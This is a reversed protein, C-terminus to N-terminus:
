CCRVKGVLKLIRCSKGVKVCGRHADGPYFVAYGEERLVIQAMRVPENWFEIDKEPDYPTKRQLTSTPAIDIEETGRIIWQIDIYKRHSELRCEASERTDYEQVTYYFDDNVTFRGPQLKTRDLNGLFSIAQEVRSSIKRENTKERLSVLWEAFERLAGDGARSFCVYDAAARVEPIADAPCGSVGGAERLVKMCVLDLSDDGFYACRQLAEASPLVSRLAEMKDTRGQLVQRIGLEACRKEVIRSERATIVVPEIGSPELLYRFAYGDKVSFAKFLEGENGIYVKGDTLSGDVDMVLYEIM